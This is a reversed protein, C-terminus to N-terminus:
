AIRGTNNERSPEIWISEILALRLHRTRSLMERVEQMSVRRAGLFGDFHPGGPERLFLDRDNGSTTWIGNRYDRRRQALFRFEAIARAYDGARFAEVPYDDLLSQLIGARDPRTALADFLERTAQACEHEGDGLLSGLIQVLTRELDDWSSLFEELLIEAERNTLFGTFCSASHQNGAKIM